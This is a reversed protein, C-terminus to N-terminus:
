KKEWEFGMKYNRKVVLKRKRKNKVIKQKVRTEIINRKQMSKFRDILLNGEPKLSKLSGTLEESLKLDLDQEEFKHGTLSAPLSKKIEKQEQRKAINEAIKKQEANIEKNMTKIRYIDLVKMKKRKSYEKRKEEMKLKLEKKRQKRTKLKNMKLQDTDDIVSSEDEIDEINGQEKQLTAIGESMEAVWTKENPAESSKPFMDTTHFDIKHQEKEKNLEVMAAKWLLDQHDKYSPNYSTGEHPLEVASLASQKAHFDRPLKNKRQRTNKLTHYKIEQELWESNEVLHSENQKM